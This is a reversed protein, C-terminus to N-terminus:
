VGAPTIRKTPRHQQCIFEHAHPFSAVPSAFSTGFPDFSQLDPLVDSASVRGSVTDHSKSTSHMVM